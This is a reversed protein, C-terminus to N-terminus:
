YLLVKVLDAVHYKLDSTLYVLFQAVADGTFRIIEFDGEEHFCLISRFNMYAM